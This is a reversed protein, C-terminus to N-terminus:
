RAVETVRTERIVTVKIEGPYALEAEIKKAIDKALLHTLSDNVMEPLVTVRIERGAQIAFTKEVGDFSNGIKELGRLRKVYNELMETRAGPRSASLADSAAVLIAITSEAEIDEHHAGIANVVLPKEKYRRALDMGIQSHKGEVEHTAAKGIDHLLGARRAMRQDLGLEAAMMGCLYAVEKSHLLVNQSYSTRYKLSGLLRTLEPHVGDCGVEMAAREGEDKINREMEKKVKKVVDEIRAPHIRGDTVLRELSIRAVERKVPDFSSLIVAEPTDDIILDVGTAMELAKINRGERGIIRGKMEDGSLAVVSVTAEAVTDAACRQISLGIIKQAKMNADRVAEDELKKMMIANENRTAALLQEKLENKAEESTMSSIRELNQQEELVLKRYRNESEQAKETQVGLEKEKQNFEKERQEIQDFKRDINNARQQLRRESRMLDKKAGRMKREFENRAKLAADRSELQAARRLNEAEKEANSIIKGADNSANKLKKSEQSRCLFFGAAASVMGVIGYTAIVVADM